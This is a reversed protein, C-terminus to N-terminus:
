RTRRTRRKKSDSITDTRYNRRSRGLRQDANYNPEPLQAEPSVPMVIEGDDNNPLTELGPKSQGENLIGEFNKDAYDTLAGILGAALGGMALGAAGTATTGGGGGNGYGSMTGGMAEQWNWGYDNKYSIAMNILPYCFIAM